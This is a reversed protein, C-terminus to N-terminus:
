GKALRAKGMQCANQLADIITRGNGM